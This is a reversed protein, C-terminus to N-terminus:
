GLSRGSMSSLFGSFLKRTIKKNTLTHPRICAWLSVYLLPKMSFISVFEMPFLFRVDHEVIDSEDDGSVSQSPQMVAAEVMESSKVEQEDHGSCKLSEEKPDQGDDSTEAEFKSCIKTSVELGKHSAFKQSSAKTLSSSDMHGSCEPLKEQM